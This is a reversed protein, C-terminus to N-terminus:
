QRARWRDVVAILDPHAVVDVEAIAIRHPRRHLPAAVAIGPERGAVRLPEEERQDGVGLMM